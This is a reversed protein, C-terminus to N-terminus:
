SLGNGWVEVANSTAWHLECVSGPGLVRNGTPKAGTGDLHTLGATGETLTLGGTGVNKVTVVSYQALANLTLAGAAGTWRIIHGEDAQLVAGSASISREAPRSNRVPSGDKSLAGTYDWDGSITENASKEAGDNLQDETKSVSKPAGTTGVFAPFSGKVATKIVRDHNDLTSALDTGAPNTEVLEPIFNAVELPM